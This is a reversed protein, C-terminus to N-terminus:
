EEFKSLHFFWMSAEACIGTFIRRTKFFPMIQDDASMLAVRIVGHLHTILMKNCLLALRVNITSSLLFNDGLHGLLPM